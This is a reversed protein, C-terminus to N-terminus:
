QQHLHNRTYSWTTLCASVTRGTGAAKQKFPAIKSRPSAKVSAVTEPVQLSSGSYVFECRILKGVDKLLTSNVGFLYTDGLDFHLTSKAFYKKREDDFAVRYRKIENFWCYLITYVPNDFTGKKTRDLRLQFKPPSMKPQYLYQPLNCNADPRSIQAVAQDRTHNKIYIHMRNSWILLEAFNVIKNIAGENQKPVWYKSDLKFFAASADYVM